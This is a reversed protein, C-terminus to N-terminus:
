CHDSHREELRPHGRVGDSGALARFALDDEDNVLNDALEEEAERGERVGPNVDHQHEERRQPEEVEIVEVLGVVAAFDVLEEANEGCVVKPGDKHEGNTLDGEEEVEVELAGHDDPEASQGEDTDVDGVLALGVNVVEEGGVEFELRTFVEFSM